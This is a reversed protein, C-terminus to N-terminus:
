NLEQLEKVKQLCAKADMDEVFDWMSGRKGTPYKVQPDMSWAKITEEKVGAHLLANCYADSRCRTGLWNMRECVGEFPSASAHVANDGVNPESKLDLERWNAFAKGRLSDKPADKPDTPGLVKARFDAWSLNEEEWEVTYWHLTRGPQTYESRMSMFFANFVYIPERGEMEVLGCYFGGGLKVLKNNKKTAAWAKNIEEATCGLKACADLANYAKGSSLVENWSLGFAKQFKDNPVNLQDPKLISAKSAIAYYHQDVLKKKDITESSIDGEGTIKLGKQVLGDRVMTKVKETTQQPKVFVFAMNRTKGPKQLYWYAAGLGATAAVGLGVRNM